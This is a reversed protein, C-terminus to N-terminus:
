MCLCVCLCIVPWIILYHLGALEKSVSQMNSPMHRLALRAFHNKKSELFRYFVILQQGTLCLCRQMSHTRYCSMAHSMSCLECCVAQLCGALCSTGTSVWSCWVTHETAHCLMHCPVCSVVYLRFVAPWFLHAPPFGHVDCQTNHLMVRCTVHFVAWLMCGSSLRGFLIHRHFGM